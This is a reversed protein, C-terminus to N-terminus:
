KFYYYLNGSFNKELNEKSDYRMLFSGGAYVHFEDQEMLEEYYIKRISESVGNEENKRVDEDTEYFVVVSAFATCIQWIAYESFEEYIRRNAFLFAHSNVGTKMEVSFDNYCVHANRARELDEFEYKRALEYFKASVEEQKKSDYFSNDFMRYYDDTTSLLIYLEYRHDPNDYELERYIFNYATVDFRSKMWEKLEIFIPPLPQEGRLIKLTATFNADDVLVM